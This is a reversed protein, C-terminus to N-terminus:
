FIGKWLTIKAEHLLVYEIFLEEITKCIYEYLYISTVKKTRM